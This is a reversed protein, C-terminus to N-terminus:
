SLRPWSQCLDTALIKKTKKTKERSKRKKAKEEQKQKLLSSKESLVASYRGHSVMMSQRASKRAASILSDHESSSKEDLWVATENASHMIKSEAFDVKLNPARKLQFDSSDLYGKEM